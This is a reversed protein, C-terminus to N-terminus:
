SRFERPLRIPYTSARVLLPSVSFFRADCAGVEWGALAFHVVKRRGDSEWSLCDCVSRYGFRCEVFRQKRRPRDRKADGETEAEYIEAQEAKGRLNEHSHNPEEGVVCRLEVSAPREALDYRPGSSMDEVNM